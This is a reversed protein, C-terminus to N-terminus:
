SADSMGKKHKASSSKRLTPSHFVESGKLIQSASPDDSSSMVLASVSPEDVSQVFSESSALKATSARGEAQGGYDLSRRASSFSRRPTDTSTRAVDMSRRRFPKF